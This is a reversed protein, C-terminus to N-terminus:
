SSLRDDLDGRAGSETRHDPAWLMAGDQSGTVAMVKQNLNPMGRFIELRSASCLFLLAVGPIYIFYVVCRAERCLGVGLMYLVLM